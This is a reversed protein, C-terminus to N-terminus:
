GCNATLYVDGEPHYLIHPMMHRGEQPLPEQGDVAWPPLAPEGSPSFLHKM